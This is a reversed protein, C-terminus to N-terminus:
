LARHPVPEAEPEVLVRVPNEELAVVRADREAGPGVGGGTERPRHERVPRVAGPRDGAQQRVAEGSADGGARDPTEPRRTRSVVGASAPPAGAAPLRCSSRHIPSPPWTMLRRRM